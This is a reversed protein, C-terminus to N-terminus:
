LRLSGALIGRYRAASLAVYGQGPPRLVYLADHSAAPDFGQQQLVGKQVKFTDTTSQAAMVRVFQPLAYAPLQRRLQQALQQGDFRSHAALVVAAMGARGDCHPVAVGYVCVQAMGPLAALAREVESAAINEGKWRFSDGLRDVFAIHRFGQNRVLDGSNIWCDGPHFLDPLLKAHTAGADTYGDFPNGPSVETVLLGVEGVAVRQVAGQADRKPGACETDYALIAYPM